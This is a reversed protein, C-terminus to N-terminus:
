KGEEGNANLTERAINVAMELGAAYDGGEIYCIDRVQILAERLKEALARYGSTEALSKNWADGLVKCKGKVTAVEAKLRMVEDLMADLKQYEDISLSIMKNKM